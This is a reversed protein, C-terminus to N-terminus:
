FERYRTSQVASSGSGTAEARLLATSLPQVRLGNAAARLRAVAPLSGCVVMFM